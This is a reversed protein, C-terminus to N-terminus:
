CVYLAALDNERMSAGAIPNTDVVQGGAGCSELARVRVGLRELRNRAAGASLGRVDPMTLEEYRPGESVFIEVEGGFAVAERAAPSTEIVEGQPISGSYAFLVLPVLQARRLRRKADEATLGTVEPVEVPAPGRSVVLDVRSGWLLKRRAPSQAIVTGDPQTSYRETVGGPSMGVESLRDRAGEVTLGTLVPVPKLPLGDSVVIGFTAGETLTGRQRQAVVRGEPIRKHTRRKVVTAELGVEEARREATSLSVGVVDPVQVRDPAMVAGVGKVAAFVLLLLVALATGRALLIQKRGPGSAKPGARRRRRSLELERDATVDDLLAEVPTGGRRPSGGARRVADAMESASHFRAAPEVACARGVIEDCEAPIRHGLQRPVLTVRRTGQRGAETRAGGRPPHGTLMESFVAGAAWIDGAATPKGPVGEPALYHGSGATGAVEWRSAPGTVVSVGFDTVKVAGFRSILIVEPSLCGHVLGSSHAASLAECVPLFLEIAHGPELTGRAVLLDRLDIGPVYETVTYCIGDEQCGWDYITVINPHALHAAASAEARWREVAAADHALRPELVKISVPRDLREDHGLYVNDSGGPARGALRYRGSLMEGVHDSALQM